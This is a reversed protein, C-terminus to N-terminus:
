LLVFFRMVRNMTAFFKGKMIVVGMALVFGVFCSYLFALISVKLGLFAGVGAMLKVDGGGVGRTLAYPIFLGMFGFLAGQLSVLFGHPGAAVLHVLLGLIIGPYTVKNYIKGRLVDTALCALLLVALLGLPM